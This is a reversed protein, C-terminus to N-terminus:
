HAVAARACLERVAKMISEPSDSPIDHGSGEVIIRRGNKSLHALRMQLDDVWVRQFEEYDQKSLGNRLTADTNEGATLVILPKDSIHDAARAQEASIRMQELESARAILYKKQLILYAGDGRSGQARLMLRGIGLNVVFFSYRALRECHELQAASLASWAKPLLEYQDEQVADALVIGMVENPYLGNFVRVNYGGFSSGVLVYPPMEGANKLVEHLETAIRLSTRPMPGPDSGGYGARDYSCVRTFKAIQPQVARWEISVDGFGAELIVTPSGVGTCNLMLRHGGADVLRGGEPFRRKDLRTEVAQFCAGALVLLVMMGCITLAIYRLWRVVGAGKKFRVVGKDGGYWFQL